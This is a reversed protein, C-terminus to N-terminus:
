GRHATASAFGLLDLFAGGGIAIVYSHRDLERDNIESWIAPVRGWDNKCPEGGEIVLPDGALELRESNEAFYVRIQDLLEPNGGAVGADVAVLIRPVRDGSVLLDVMTLNELEFAGQTFLIRHNYELQIPREIM